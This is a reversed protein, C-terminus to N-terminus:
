LHDSQYLSSFEPSYLGQREAESVTYFVRKYGALLLVDSEINLNTYNLFRDFLFLRRCTGKSVGSVATFPKSIAGAFKNGTM